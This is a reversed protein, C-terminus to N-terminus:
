LKTNKSILLILGAMIVVLIILMIIYDNFASPTKTTANTKQKKTLTGSFEFSDYKQSQANESTAKKVRTIKTSSTRKASDIFIEITEIEEDSNIQQIISEQSETKQVASSDVQTDIRITEKKARCGTLSAFIIIAVIAKNKM